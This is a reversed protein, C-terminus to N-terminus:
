EDGVADIDVENQRKLNEELDKLVKYEENSLASREADTMESLLKAAHKVEGTRPDVYRRDETNPAGASAAHAGILTIAALAATALHRKLPITTNM